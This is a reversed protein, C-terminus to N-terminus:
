NKRARRKISNTVTSHNADLTLHREFAIPRGGGSPFCSNLPDCSVVGRREKGGGLEPGVGTGAGSVM